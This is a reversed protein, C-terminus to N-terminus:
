SPISVLPSERSGPLTIGENNTQDWGRILDKGKFVGYFLPCGGGCLHAVSCTECENSAYRNLKDYFNSVPPSNIHEGLSQGDSFEKGWTGIHHDPLSNCSLLNGDVDFILGTRHQLQCTTYLQGKDMMKKVLTKPWMCLPLKASISFRGDFLRDLKDYNAVIGQVFLQPHVLFESDPKGKVYPPTSPSIGLSKAGCDSAFEAINILGEIDEGTYVITARAGGLTIARKIGRKTTEFNKRGTICIYSEEDFAKISISTTSAPLASYKEWFTDAGFRTANTVLTTRLGKENAYRIYDFLHPWLTPEGGILIMSKVGNAFMGESLRIATELTMNDHPNYETGKAYCWECRMNCERNVTLWGVRPKIGGPM